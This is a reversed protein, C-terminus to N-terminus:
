ICLSSSRFFFMPWHYEYTEVAVLNLDLRKLTERHLIATAQFNPECAKGRGDEDAYVWWYDTDEIIEFYGGVADQIDTM